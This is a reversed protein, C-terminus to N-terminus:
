TSKHGCFVSICFRGHGKSALEDSIIVPKVEHMYCSPFAIFRNNKPQFPIVHQPNDRQTGNYLYLEGGTFKRPKIDFWYLGTIFSGDYHPKYHDGNKYYSLMMGSWDMNYCLDRLVEVQFENYLADEFVKRNFIKVTDSSTHVDDYHDSYHIGMNQKLIEGDLTAPNTKKGDILYQFLDTSEKVVLSLEDENLFNEKVIFPVRKM